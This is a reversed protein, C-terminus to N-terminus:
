GQTISIIGISQESQQFSNEDSYNYTKLANFADRADDSEFSKFYQDIAFGIAAGYIGKKLDKVFAGWSYSPEAILKKITDAEFSLTNDQGSSNVDDLLTTEKGDDEITNYIELASAISVGFPGGTAFAIMGNIFKNVETFFVEDNNASAILKAADLALLDDIIIQLRGGVPCLMYSSDLLANEREIFVTKHYNEWKAQSVIDCDHSTMYCVFEAGAVGATAVVAVTAAATAAASAAVAAIIPGSVPATIVVVAIAAAVAVGAFFAALGDWKKRPMKCKFCADLKKDSINLLPVPINSYITIGATEILEKAPNLGLKRPTQITMNSCIINVGQRVFSRAMVTDEM